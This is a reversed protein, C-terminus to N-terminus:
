SEKCCIDSIIKQLVKGLWIYQVFFKQDQNQALSRFLIGLSKWLDQFNQPHCQYLHLRTCQITLGLFVWLGLLLRQLDGWFQKWYSTYDFAKYSEFYCHLRGLRTSQFKLQSKEQSQLPLIPTQHQLVKLFPYQTKGKLKWFAQFLSGFFKRQNLSHNWKLCDM